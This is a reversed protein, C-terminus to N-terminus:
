VKSVSLIKSGKIIINGLSNRSLLPIESASICLNTKNGSILLNDSDEILAINNLNGSTDSSKYCMLGKGGRLQTPLESLNIRKGLGNESFLYM